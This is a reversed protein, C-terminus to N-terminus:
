SFNCYTVLVVAFIYKPYIQYYYSKPICLGRIKFSNIQIKVTM